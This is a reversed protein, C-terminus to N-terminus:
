FTNRKEVYLISHIPLPVRPRHHHHRHSRVMITLVHATTYVYQQLCQRCFLSTFDETQHTSLIVDYPSPNTRKCITAHIKLFSKKDFLSMKQHLWDCELHHLKSGILCCLIGTNKYVYQQSPPACSCCLPVFPFLYVTSHPAFHPGSSWRLTYRVFLLGTIM